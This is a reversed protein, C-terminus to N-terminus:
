KQGAVRKKLRQAVKSAAGKTMGIEDAIATLGGKADGRQRAVLSDLMALDSKNTLRPRIAAASTNFRQTLIATPITVFQFIPTSIWEV